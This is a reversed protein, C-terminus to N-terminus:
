ACFSIGICNSAEDCGRSAERIMADNPEEVGYLPLAKSNVKM